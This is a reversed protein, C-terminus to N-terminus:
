PLNLEYNDKRLVKEIRFPGLKTYDLKRSLRTTKINQQLLYAKDGEKLVPGKTRKSNYSKAIRVRLFIIDINFEKYLDKLENVQVKAKNIISEVTGMVYSTTPEYSYNMFFLSIGISESFTGNYVLM